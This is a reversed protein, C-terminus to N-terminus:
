KQSSDTPLTPPQKFASPRSRAAPQQKVPQQLPTEPVSAPMARKVPTAKKPTSKSKGGMVILGGLALVGLVMVLVAIIWWPFTGGDGTAPPANGTTIPAVPAPQSEDVAAPVGSGINLSGTQSPITQLDAAVLKAHEITLTSPSNQLVKFSVRALPGSGEAPPAPNLLTMAFIIEGTSEDVKNAVVFGKDLPLLTGVEIQAGNQDPNLDQVALVAPDYHLRFEAGYMNSINDIMVEVTLTDEPSEIPLLYVNAGEQALALSSTLLLTLILLLIFLTTNFSFKMM